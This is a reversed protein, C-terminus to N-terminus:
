TGSPSSTLPPSSSSSSPSSTAPTTNCCTRVELIDSTQDKFWPGSATLKLQYFAYKDLGEYTYRGSCRENTEVSFGDYCTGVTKFGAGYRPRVEFHVTIERSETMSFKVTATTTGVSVVGVDLDFRQPPTSVSLSSSNYQKFAYDIQVEFRYTFNPELDHIKTTWDKTGFSTESTLTDATRLTNPEDPSNHRINIYGILPCELSKRYRVTVMVSQETVDKLAVDSVNFCSPGVDEVSTQTREAASAPNDSGFPIGVLITVPLV